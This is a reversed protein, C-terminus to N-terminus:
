VVPEVHRRGKPWTGQALVTFTSGCGDEEPRRVSWGMASAALCVTAQGVDGCILPNRAHAPEATPVPSGRSQEKGNHKVSLEVGQAVHRAHILVEPSRGPHVHDLADEILNQLIKQLLVSDARLTLGDTDIFVRGGRGTVKQQCTEAACRAASDLDVDEVNLDHESIRYYNLLDLVLQRAKGASSQIGDLSEEVAARDDDALADELLGVYAAIKRIPDRLDDSATRALRDRDSVSLGPDRYKSRQGNLASM